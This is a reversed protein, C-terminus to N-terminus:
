AVQVAGLKGLLQIAEVGAHALGIPGGATISAPLLSVISPLFFIWPRLSLGRRRRPVPRWESADRRRRVDEITVTKAQAAATLPRCRVAGWRMRTRESRAGVVSRAIELLREADTASPDFHVLMNGTIHNTLVQRVGRARLLRTELRRATGGATLGAVYLRVRGPLAHVIRPEAKTARKMPM